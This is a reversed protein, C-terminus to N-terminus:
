CYLLSAGAHVWLVYKAEHTLDNQLLERAMNTVLRGADTHDIALLERAAPTFRKICLGEDLFLTAIKTSSLFNTLDDHAQEVQEIKERLQVNVTTLEENLSRLEETTAELEENTSQLEENISMSEENSSRLEENSTELEEM